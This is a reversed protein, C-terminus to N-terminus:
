LSIPTAPVNDYGQWGLALLDDEVEPDIADECGSCYWDMYCGEERLTAIIGGAYRWSCSWVDRNPDQRLLPLFERRIWQSNCLTHYLRQAYVKDRVKEKIIDSDLLDAELDAHETNPM